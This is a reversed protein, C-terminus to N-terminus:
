DSLHVNKPVNIHETINPITPGNSLGNLKVGCIAMVILVVVAIGLFLLRRECYNM